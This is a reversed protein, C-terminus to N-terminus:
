FLTWLETLRVGIHVVPSASALFLSIVQQLDSLWHGASSPFVSRRGRLVSHGSCVDCILLVTMSTWTSQPWSNCMLNPLCCSSIYMSIRLWLWKLVLWVALLGRATRHWWQGCPFSESFSPVPSTLLPAWGVPCTEQSLVVAQWKGQALESYSHGSRIPWSQDKM